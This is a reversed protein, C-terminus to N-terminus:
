EYLGFIGEVYVSTGSGSFEMAIGSKRTISKLLSFPTDGDEIKLDTPKLLVDGDAGLVSFTVSDARPPAPKQPPTAAPKKTPAHAPKKQPAAAPAKVSPQAPNKPPVVAPADKKPAPPAPKKVDPPAPVKVASPAQAAPPTPATPTKNACGCLLLACMLACPLFRLKM